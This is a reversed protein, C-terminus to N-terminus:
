AIWNNTCNGFGTTQYIGTQPLTYWKDNPITANFRYSICSSNQSIKPLVLSYVSHRSGNNQLFISM